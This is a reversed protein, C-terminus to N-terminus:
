QAWDMKLHPYCAALEKYIGAEYPEGQTYNIDQYIVETSRGKYVTTVTQYQPTLYIYSVRYICGDSYDTTNGIYRLETTTGIQETQGVCITKGKQFSCNPDQVPKAALASPALMLAMVLVLSLAM